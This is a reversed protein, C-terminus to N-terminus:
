EPDNYGDDEPDDEWKKKWDDVHLKGYFDTLYASIGTKGNVDYHSPQFSIDIYDFEDRDLQNINDETIHLTAKDSKVIIKPPWKSNINVKIQLYYYPIQGEKRPEWYQVNWGDNLMDQAFQEDPIIINFNRQGERNVIKGTTKSTKEEGSFNRSNWDSPFHADEIVIKTRGNVENQYIRSM